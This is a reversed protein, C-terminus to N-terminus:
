PNLRTTDLVNQAEKLTIVGRDALFNLYSAALVVPNMGGIKVGGSQTAEQKLKDIDARKAINKSILINGLRKYFEIIGPGAALPDEPQRAILKDLEGAKKGDVVGKSQLLAATKTALASVNYGGITGESCIGDSVPLVFSFVTLSLITFIRLVFGISQIRSKPNQIEHHM